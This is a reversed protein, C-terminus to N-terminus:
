GPGRSEDLSTAGAAWAVRNRGEAKARHLAAEARQIYTRLPQGRDAAAVGVSVTLDLEHEGIRHPAGGVASRLKEAALVAGELPTVPLFVLLEGGEWRAVVDQARVTRALLHAVHALAQDGVEQGHTANVRQFGDLDVMAVAFSPGGRWLREAERELLELIARQNLLGTLPDTRDM